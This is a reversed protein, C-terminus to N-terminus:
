FMKLLVLALHAQVTPFRSKIGFLSVVFLKIEGSKVLVVNRGAHYM